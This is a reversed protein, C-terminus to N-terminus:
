TMPHIQSMRRVYLSNHQTCGQVVLPSICSEIGNESLSHINPQWEGGLIKRELSQIQTWEEMVSFPHLDYNM